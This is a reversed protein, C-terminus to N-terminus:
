GGAVSYTVLVKATCAIRHISPRFAGREGPLNWAISDVRVSDVAYVSTKLTVALADCIPYANETAEAVASRILADRDGPVIFPGAVGCEIEAAVEAIADCIKAFEVDASDGSGLGVLGIRVTASAIVLNDPVDPIAPAAAEVSILPLERLDLAARVKSGFDLASTTAQEFTSGEFSAEFVFDAYSPAAYITAEGGCQVLAGLPDQAIALTSVLLMVLLNIAIGRM